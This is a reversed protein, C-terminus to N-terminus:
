DLFVMVPLPSNHPPRQVEPSVKLYALCKEIPVMKYDTNTCANHKQLSCLSSAIAYQLTNQDYGCVFELHRPCIQVCPKFKNDYWEKWRASMDEALLETSFGVCVILLLRSLQM